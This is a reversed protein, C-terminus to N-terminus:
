SRSAKSGIVDLVAIPEVGLVAALRKVTSVQPDISGAELRAVYSQSTGLLAAFEKQSWGRQLRYYSLTRPSGAYHHEAVARRGAAIAQQTEPDTQIREVLPDIDEFGSPLPAKIAIPELVVVPAGRTEPVAALTRRV